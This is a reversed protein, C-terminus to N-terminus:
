GSDMWFKYTQTKNLIVKMGQLNQVWASIVLAYFLSYPDLIRFETDQIRIVLGSCTLFLFTIWSQIKLNQPDYNHDLIPIIWSPTFDAKCLNMGSSYGWVFFHSTIRPIKQHIVIFCICDWAQTKHTQPFVRNALHQLFEIKSLFKNGFNESVLFTNKPSSNGNKLSSQEFAHSINYFFDGKSVLFPRFLDFNTM